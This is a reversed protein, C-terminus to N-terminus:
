NLHDLIDSFFRTEKEIIEEIIEVAQEFGEPKDRDSIDKLTLALLAWKKAIVNMKESPAIKAFSPDINKAQELFETYLARFAGGGTGRKEIVQYFWRASWQWDDSDAFSHLAKACNKLGDMGVIGTLMPPNFIDKAQSVLAKKISTSINYEHGRVRVPFYDGCVQAWPASSYRGKIFDEYPVEQLGPFQTDAVYVTKEKNDFGWISIVHGPFSTNTNYYHLHKIDSKMLVPQGDLIAEEMKEMAHDKDKDIIWQFPVEINEFFRPELFASRTATLHSPSSQEIHFYAFGLGCGLGLCMAEDLDIGEFIMVDSIATSACHKGPIHVHGELIKKM